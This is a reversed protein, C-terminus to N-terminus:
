ADPVAETAAGIAAMIRRAELSQRVDHVRVIRVGAAMCHSTVVATALDRSEARSKHTIEGLFRKRSAGVLVPLGADVLEALRALLQLNHRTTKGFGLGPDIVIADRAVGCSEAWAARALLFSRVEGVVDTYTPAEQMTAPRGQMHMLVVGAGSRACVGVLRADDRLASVDNIIDAGASVAAEAVEALRTDVSIPADIGDRRLREIVPVVRRIQEGAGVPASGPRTSEGGIDLLDAGESLLRRAHDAAAAPDPMADSNGSERRFFRGGDSFSDPTVNVIGMLRIPGDLRMGRGRFRWYASRGDAKAEMAPTAARNNQETKVFRM